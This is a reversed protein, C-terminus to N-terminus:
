NCDDLAITFLTQEEDLLTEKSVATTWKSLYKRTTRNTAGCIYRVGCSTCYVPVSYEAYLYLKGNPGKFYNYIKEHLNGELGVVYEQDADEVFDLSATVTNNLNDTVLWLDAEVGASYGVVGVGGQVYAGIGSKPKFSGEIATIGTLAIDSVFGVTAQAGATIKVPVIGVIFQQTYGTKKGIDWTKVYGVATSGSGSYTSINKNAKKYVKQKILTAKSLNADKSIKLDIEAEEEADITPTSLESVDALSQSESFVTVGLVEVDLDYGTGEFSGPLVDADFNLKMFRDKNGMAKARISAYVRSHLGSADLGASGTLYAGAGFYDGYKYKEFTKSYDLVKPACESSSAQVSQQPAFAPSPSSTGTLAALIEASAVFDADISYVKEIGKFSLTVELRSNLLPQEFNEVKAQIEDLLKGIETDPLVTDLSVLVDHGQEIDKLELTDSLTGNGESSWLPLAICEAGIDLCATINVDTANLEALNPRLTLTTDISINRDVADITIAPLTTLPLGALAPAANANGEESEQPDIAGSVIIDDAGHDEVTVSTGSEKFQTEDDWEGLLDDPDITAIVTYEGPAIDRPVTVNLEYSLTGSRVSRIEFSDLYVSTNQEDSKVASFVVPVDELDQGSHVTMEAALQSGAAVQADVAFDDVTLFGEASHRGSGGGNCGSFFLMSLVIGVMYSLKM